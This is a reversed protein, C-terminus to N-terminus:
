SVIVKSCGKSAISSSKEHLGVPKQNCSSSYSVFAHAKFAKKIEKKRHNRVIEEM